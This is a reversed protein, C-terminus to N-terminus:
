SGLRRGQGGYSSRGVTPPAVENFEPILKPGGALPLITNFFLYAHAATYGVLGQYLGVPGGNLFDLFLLALPLYCAKLRVFYLSVPVHVNDQAWTYTLAISLCRTYILMNMGLLWDFFKNTHWQIIM